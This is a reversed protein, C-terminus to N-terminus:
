TPRPTMTGHDRLESSAPCRNANYSKGSIIKGHVYVLRRSTYQFCGRSKARYLWLKNGSNRAFFIVAPTIIDSSPIALRCEGRTGGGRGMGASLLFTEIHDDMEQAPEGPQQGAGDSGGPPEQAASVVAAVVKVVNDSPPRRHCRRRHHRPATAAIRFSAQDHTSVRGRPRRGHRREADSVSQAIVHFLTLPRIRHSSNRRMTSAHSSLSGGSTPLTRPGALRQPRICLELIHVANLGLEDNKDTRSHSTITGNGSDQHKDLCYIDRTIASNQLQRKKTKKFRLSSADKPHGSRSM